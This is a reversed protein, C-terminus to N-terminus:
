DDVRFALWFPRGAEDEIGRHFTEPYALSNPKPGAAHNLNHEIVVLIVESAAPHDPDTFSAGLLFAFDAQLYERRFRM